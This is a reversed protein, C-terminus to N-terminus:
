NKDLTSYKIKNNKLHQNKVKILYNIFYEHWFEWAKTKLDDSALFWYAFGEAMFEYNSTLAYTSFAFSKFIKEISIHLNNFNIIKSKLFEKLHFVIDINNFDYYYHVIHGLEHILTHFFSNTSKGGNKWENNITNEYICELAIPAIQITRNNRTTIGFSHLNKSIIIAYLINDASKKDLVNSIFNYFLLILKILDNQYKQCIDSNNILEKLTKRVGLHLFVFLEEVSNFIKEKYFSLNKNDTTSLFANTLNQETSTLNNYNGYYDDENNYYKNNKNYAWTGKYGRNQFLIQSPKYTKKILDINNNTTNLKEPKVPEPFLSKKPNWYVSYLVYLIFSLLIIVVLIISINIIYFLRKKGRNM